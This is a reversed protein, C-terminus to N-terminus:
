RVQQQLSLQYKASTRLIYDPSIAREPKADTVNPISKITSIDTSSMLLQKGETRGGGSGVAVKQNPNYVPPASNATGPGPSSSNTLQITILNTAGLNGIQKNLYSKIGTGIGNTLTITMAGIFIAIITLFTRAKARLMNSSATLLLDTFKM